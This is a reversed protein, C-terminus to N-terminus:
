EQSTAHKWGGPAREDCEYMASSQWKEMSYIFILSLFQVHRRQNSRAPQMNGGEPHGRRVNM